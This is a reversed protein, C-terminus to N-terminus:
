AAVDLAHDDALLRQVNAVIREPVADDSFRNTISWSLIWQEANRRIKLHIPTLTARGPAHYIPQVRSATFGEATWSRPDFSGFFNVFAHGSIKQQLTIDTRNRVRHFASPWASAAAKTEFIDKCTLHPHFIYPLAHSVWGAAARRVRNDRGHVASDIRILDIECEERISRELARIVSAENLSQSAHEHALLVTTRRTVDADGSSDLSQVGPLETVEDWPRRQWWSAAPGPAVNWLAELERLYDIYTDKVSPASSKQVYSRIFTRIFRSAAVFDSFAHNFVFVLHDTTETSIRILGWTVGRVLDLEAALGAVHLDMSQQLRIDETEAQKFTLDEARDNAPRIIQRCEAHSNVASLSARLAPHSSQTVHMADLLRSQTLRM